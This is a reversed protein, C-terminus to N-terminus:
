NVLNSHQAPFDSLVFVDDIFSSSGIDLYFIAQITTDENPDRTTFLFSNPQRTVELSVPGQHLM